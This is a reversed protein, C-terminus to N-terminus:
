KCRLRHAAGVVCHCVHCKGWTIVSDLFRNCPATQENVHSACGWLSPIMSTHSKFRTQARGRLSCLGLWASVEPRFLLGLHPTSVAEGPSDLVSRRTQQGGQGTSLRLPSCLPGWSTSGEEGPLSYGTVAISSSQQLRLLGWQGSLGIPCQLCPLPPLIPCQPGPSALHNGMEALQQNM